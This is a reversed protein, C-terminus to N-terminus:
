LQSFLYLLCSIPHSHVYKVDISKLWNQIPDDSQYQEKSDNDFTSVAWENWANTAEEEAESRGCEGDGDGGSGGHSGVNGIYSQITVQDENNYLDVCVHLSKGRLGSVAEGLNEGNKTFCLVGPGDNGTADFDLIIGVRDGTDFGGSMCYPFKGKSSYLKGDTCFVWSKETDTRQGIWDNLGANCEWFATTILGVGFHKPGKMDVSFSWKHVGHTLPPSAVVAGSWTNSANHVLSRGCNLLHANPSHHLNFTSGVTTYDLVTVEDALNYLCVAAYLTLGYVGSAAEGLNKNNLIFYIAGRGKVGVQDFDVM